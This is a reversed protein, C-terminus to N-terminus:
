FKIVFFHGDPQVAHNASYIGIGAGVLVDSPFHASKQMRAFGVLSALGYFAWKYKPYRKALVTGVAFAASTHGSPFSVFGGSKMGPGTFEGAEEGGISPRARSTIRKIAETLLTSNVLAQGAAKVTNKEYKGGLLYMGGLAPLLVSGSGLNNAANILRNGEGVRRGDVIDGSLQKDFPILLLGAAALLKPVTNNTGTRSPEVTTPTPPEPSPTQPWDKPVALALMIPENTNPDEGVFAALPPNETADVPAVPLAATQATDADELVHIPVALLLQASLVLLLLIGACCQSPKRCHSLVRFCSSM